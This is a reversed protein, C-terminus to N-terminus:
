PTSWKTTFGTLHARRAIFTLAIALLSLSVAVYWFPATAAATASLFALVLSLVLESVHEAQTIFSHTATRIADAASMNVWLTALLRLCPFVSLAVVFVSASSFLSLPALAAVGAAVGAAVALAAFVRVLGSAKGAYRGLAAILGAGLLLAALNLVTFLTTSGRNTTLGRAELAVPYLRSTIDETSAIVVTVTLMVWVFPQRLLFASIARLSGSGSGGVQETNVVRDRTRIAAALAAGLVIMAAGAAVILVAHPALVGLGGFVAIGAGSGLLQTRGIRTLTAQRRDPDTITASVWATDSGSAMAWSIGWVVQTAVLVPFATTLGTVLMGAGMVVHSAILMRRPGIRDAIVGAPLETCLAALAQAASIILLESVSLRATIVLWLNALLWWGSYLASRASGWAVFLRAARAAGM